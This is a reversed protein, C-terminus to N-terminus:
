GKRIMDAVMGATEARLSAVLGDGPTEAQEVDARYYDRVQEARSLATLWAAEWALRAPERVLPNDAYNPQNGYELQWWAEFPTMHMVENGELHRRIRPERRVQFLPPSEGQLVRLASGDARTRLGSVDLTGTPAENPDEREEPAKGYGFRELPAKKFSGM